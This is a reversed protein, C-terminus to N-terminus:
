YRRFIGFIGSFTLFYPPTPQWPWFTTLVFPAQWHAHAHIGGVSYIGEQAVKIIELVCLNQVTLFM